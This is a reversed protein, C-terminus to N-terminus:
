VLVRKSLNCGVYHSTFSPVYSAQFLARPAPRSFREAFPLSTQCNGALSPPPSKRMVRVVLVIGLEIWPSSELQLTSALDLQLLYFLTM